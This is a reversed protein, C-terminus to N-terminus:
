HLTFLITCKVFVKVTLLLSIFVAPKYKIYLVYHSKPGYKCITFIDTDLKAALSKSKKLLLQVFPSM